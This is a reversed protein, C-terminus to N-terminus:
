RRRVVFRKCLEQWEVVAETAGQNADLDTTEMKSL